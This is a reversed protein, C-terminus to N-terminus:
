DYYQNCDMVFEGDRRWYGILENVRKAVDKLEYPVNNLWSLKHNYDKEDISCVYLLTNDLKESYKMVKLVDDMFAKYSRYHVGKFKLEILAYIEYSSHWLSYIFHQEYTPKVIAIDVRNSILGTSKPIKFETLVRLGQQFLGEEELKQRLHFYFASKLSDELLLYGKLYDDKLNEIWIATIIQNLKKKLELIRV